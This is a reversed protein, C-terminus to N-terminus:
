LNIPMLLLKVKEEFTVAVPWMNQSCIRMLLYLGGCVVKSFKNFNERRANRNIEHIFILMFM